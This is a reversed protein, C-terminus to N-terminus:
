APAGIRRLWAEVESPHALELQKDWRTASYTGDSRQELCFGRMAARAQRGIFAKREVEETTDTDSVIGVGQALGRDVV